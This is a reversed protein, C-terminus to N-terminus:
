ALHRQKKEPLSPDLKPKEVPKEVKVEPKEKKKMVLNYLWKYMVQRSSM